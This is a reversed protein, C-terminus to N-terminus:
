HTIFLNNNLKELLFKNFPYTIFFGTKNVKLKFTISKLSFGYILMKLVAADLRYINCFMNNHTLARKNAM